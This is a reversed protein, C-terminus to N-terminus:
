RAIWVGASVGLLFGLVLGVVFMLVVGDPLM